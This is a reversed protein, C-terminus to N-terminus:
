IISLKHVKKHFAFGIIDLLQYHYYVAIIIFAYYHLKEPVEFQLIYLLHGPIKIFVLQCYNVPM